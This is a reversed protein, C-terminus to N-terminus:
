PGGKSSFGLQVKLGEFKLCGCLFKHGFHLNALKLYKTIECGLGSPILPGGKSSFGLQM